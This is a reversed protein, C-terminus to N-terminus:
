EYRSLRKRVSELDGEFVKLLLDKQVADADSAFGSDIVVEPPAGAKKTQLSMLLYNDPDTNVALLPHNTFLLIQRKEKYELIMPVLYRAMDENDFEQEPEDIIVPGFEVKRIVMCLIAARRQSLGLSLFATWEPAGVRWQLNMRLRHRGAAEDWHLELLRGKSEEGFFRPMSFLENFKQISAAERTKLDDPTIDFRGCLFADLEQEIDVIQRIRESNYFGPQLTPDAKIEEASKGDQGLSYFTVAPEMPQPNANRYYGYQVSPQDGTLKEVFLAAYGRAPAPDNERIPYPCTPDVAAQILNHLTSKGVGVKGSICNLNRNFHLVQRGLIPHDFAMGQLYLGDWDKRDSTFRVRSAPMQIATRLAEFSPGTMKLVTSRKAIDKLQHSDSGQFYALSPLKNNRRVEDLKTKVPGTEFRAPNIVEVARLRANGVVDAVAGSTLKYTDLMAQDTGDIHAPIAIGGKQVILNITDFPSLTGVAMNICWEEVPIGVESLLDCILFHARRRPRQPPFIALIHVGNTSIEVGPLVVLRTRKETANVKQAADDIIEYWTPATLDMAGLDDDWLTGMGNHDTVAVLSLKKALFTQVIQDAKLRSYALLQDQYGRLSDPYGEGPIQSRFYKLDRLLRLDYYKGELDSAATGQINRVATLLDVGAQSKLASLTKIDDCELFACDVGALDKLDNIADIEQRIRVELDRRDDPDKIGKFDKIDELLLLDNLVKSELIELVNLDLKQIDTRDKLATLSEFGKLDSLLDAGAAKSRTQYSTGYPNFGYKDKGRGDSSSPTHFHLDAQFFRTGYPRGQISTFGSLIEAPASM